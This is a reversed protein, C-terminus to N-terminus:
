VDMSDSYEPLMKIKTYIEDRPDTAIVESSPVPIAESPKEGKEDIVEVIENNSFYLYKKELVAHEQRLKENGYVNVVVQVSDSLYDNTLSAIMFYADDIILGSYTHKKQLAM